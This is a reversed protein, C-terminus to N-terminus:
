LEKKEFVDKGSITKRNRNRSTEPPNPHKPMPNKSVPDIEIM